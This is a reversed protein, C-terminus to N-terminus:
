PLIGHSGTSRRAAFDLSGVGILKEPDQLDHLAVGLHYVSSDMTEFVVHYNSLRGQETQIPPAGPGVINVVLESTAVSLQM